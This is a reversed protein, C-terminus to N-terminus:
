FSSAARSFSYASRLALAPENWFSRSAAIALASCSPVPMALRWALIAASRWCFSFSPLRRTESSLTWASSSCIVLCFSCSDSSLLCSAVARLCAWSRAMLAISPALLAVENEATLSIARSCALVAWFVM